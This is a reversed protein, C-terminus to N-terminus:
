RKRLFPPIMYHGVAPFGCKKARASCFFNDVAVYVILFSIVVLFFEKQFLFFLAAVIGFLVMAGYGFTSLMYLNQKPNKQKM